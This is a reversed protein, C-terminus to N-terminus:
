VFSLIFHSESNISSVHMFNLTKKVFKVYHRHLQLFASNKKEAQKLKLSLKRAKIRLKIIVDKDFMPNQEM